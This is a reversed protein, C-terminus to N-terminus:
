ITYYLRTSPAFTSNQRCWYHVAKIDYKIRNEYNKVIEL